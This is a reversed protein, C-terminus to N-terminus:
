SDTNIAESGLRLVQSVAAKWCGSVRGQELEVIRIGEFEDAHYM